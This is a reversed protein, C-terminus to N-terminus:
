EREKGAWNTAGGLLNALSNDLSTGNPDFTYDLADASVAYPTTILGSAMSAGFEGEAALGIQIASGAGGFLAGSALSFTSNNFLGTQPTTQGQLYNSLVNATESGAAGALTGLLPSDPVVFGVAAGVGAGTFLGVVAGNVGGRYLGTVFGNYGGFGAGFIAGEIGFYGNPDIVNVPNNKVYAYINTGDVFGL